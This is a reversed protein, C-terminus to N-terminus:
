PTPRIDAARTEEDVRPAYVLGRRMAWINKQEHLPIIGVDQMGMTTAQQLLKERANDDATLLARDILADLAPNSYRGRNATGMGKEPAVTALQARLANSAEGTATSWGFQFVSFEQRGARGVYASWPLAEVTTQVGIRSWMQGIAQIVKADNVYRDNSGHLTIRLGQPFGAEALLQKARAPDYAPAKLGPVYSYSGEPLFQGTPLATNEMVRDAIATRNIALSLAERVRHDRLPNKELVEGNPGTVFPTPGDRGQDMALFILRSGVIESIALRSDGRLRAIDSTPVADIFDVDGSLLAASRAADNSIIRYTVKSWAPKPGWYDDNRALEIRDGSRYSVFKFPGTGIANKGSNFDETTPNAGIGHSIIAFQSVDVPLLPYVGATHLRVTHPDIIEVRTIAKTYISFSSPSNAVHPIRNITFAVDEATFDSGDHFKASRLKFEWTTDDVARWSLALGPIPRQNIDMDILRDFIHATLAINPTLVHYHPDISTVPAAVAISLTAAPQALVAQGLCASLLTTMAIRRSIRTRLHMAVGPQVAGNYRRAWILAVFGQNRDFRRRHGGGAIAARRQGYLTNTM